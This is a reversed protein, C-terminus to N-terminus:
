TKARPLYYVFGSPTPANPPPNILLKVFDEYQRSRNEEYPKGQDSGAVDPAHAPCLRPEDQKVLDPLVAVTDIAVRNGGITRGVVRGDADVLDNKNIRLAISRQAGSPRDYKLFLKAEDRNWSYRLGPIEPVEGEVHVNNPSPIFLLGFAAVAGGIPTAIRTAYLGLELAQAATLDGLFSAAPLPMRSLFSSRQSAESVPTEGAAVAEGAQESDTWEGSTRGSGAPVRPEAPDYGKEVADACSSDINLAQFIGRPSMGAQLAREAVFLRYAATRLDGPAHLGSHALHIHAVCQDGDRWSKVAREINGLVAPPVAEGYAAALLALVRAEQGQVSQLLRPGRAHLLVTGGLMLGERAFTMVSYIPVTRERVRWEDRLQKELV